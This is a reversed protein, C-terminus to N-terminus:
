RGHARFRAGRTVLGCAEAPHAESRPMWSPRGCSTSGPRPSRATRLTTCSRQTPRFGALTRRSLAVVHEDSSLIDHLEPQMPAGLLETIKRFM